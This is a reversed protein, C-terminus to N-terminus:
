GKKLQCSIWDGSTIEQLGQVQETDYIYVYATVARVDTYVTREMRDYHNSKGPGQYGELWNISELTEDSVIYLEGYVKHNDDLTMAPFGVGVDYLKGYTWCESAALEADQMFHHNSGHSRLTGYVFVYHKTM